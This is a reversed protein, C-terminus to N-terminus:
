GTRAARSPAACAPPASSSCARSGTPSTRARTASTPPRRSSRPSAGGPVSPEGAEARDLLATLEAATRPDPDDAIWARVRGALDAWTDGREIADAGTETRETM